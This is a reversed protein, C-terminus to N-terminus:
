GQIRLLRFAADFLNHAVCFIIKLKKGDDTCFWDSHRMIEGLDLFLDGFLFAASGGEM